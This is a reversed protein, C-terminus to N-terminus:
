AGGGGAGSGGPVQVLWTVGETCPPTTLSGEYHYYARRDAHYSFRFDRLHASGTGALLGLQRVLPALLPSPPRARGERGGMWEEMV